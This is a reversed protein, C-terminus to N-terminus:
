AAIRGSAFLLTRLKPLDAERLFHRGNRKTSRLKGDLVLGYVRRYSAAELIDPSVGDAAALDRARLLADPLSLLGSGADNVMTM